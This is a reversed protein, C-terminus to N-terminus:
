VFAGLLCLVIQVEHRPVSAVLESFEDSSARAERARSEQAHEHKDTEEFDM